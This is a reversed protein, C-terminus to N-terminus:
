HGGANRFAWFRGNDAMGRHAVNEETSMTGGKWVVRLDVTNADIVRLVQASHPGPGPLENCPKTMQYYNVVEDVEAMRQPAAAARIASGHAM